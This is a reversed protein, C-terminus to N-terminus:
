ELGVVEGLSNVRSWVCNEVQTDTDGCEISCVQVLRGGIERETSTSGANVVSTKSTSLDQQVETNITVKQRQRIKEQQQRILDSQLFLRFIFRIPNQTNNSIYM